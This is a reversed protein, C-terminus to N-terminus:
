VPIALMPFDIEYLIRHALGPQFFRALANRKRNPVLIMQIKEEVFMREAEERIKGQGSPYAVAFECQPFADSLKAKLSELSDAINVGKAKEVTPFLFIKVAPNGFMQMLRSVTDFDGADLNCFACIRVIERFGEFTYDEPVTMVPAFSHDIVEVTVSGILEERRKENGRTAMVVVAPPTLACYEAIVEEPMGLSIVTNFDIAPLQGLKQKSSIKNKLAAMSKEDISHVEADLEMEEIEANENDIGNFDDPFQPVIAPGPVVSAHILTAKLGLRRALEFGVLLAIDGKPSFDVPILVRQGEGTTKKVQTM